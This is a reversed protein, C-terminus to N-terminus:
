ICLEQLDPLYNAIYQVRNMPHLMLDLRTFQTHMSLFIPVDWNRGLNGIKFSELSDIWQESSFTCSKLKLHNLKLAVLGLDFIIGFSNEIILTEVNIFVFYLYLLCICRINDAHKAFEILYCSMIQNKPKNVSYYM